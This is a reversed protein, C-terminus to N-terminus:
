RNRVAMPRNAARIDKVFYYVLGIIVPTFAAAFFVTGITTM